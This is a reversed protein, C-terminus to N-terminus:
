SKSNSEITLNKLFVFYNKLKKVHEKEKKSTLGKKITQTKFNNEGSGNATTLFLYKM